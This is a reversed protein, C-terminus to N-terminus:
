PSAAGWTRYFMASSVVYESCQRRMKLKIVIVISVYEAKPYTTNKIVGGRNATMENAGNARRPTHETKYRTKNGIKAPNSLHMKGKNLLMIAIGDSGAM